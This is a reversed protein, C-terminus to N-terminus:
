KDKKPTEQGSYRAELEAFQQDWAEPDAAEERKGIRAIIAENLTKLGELANGPKAGAKFAKGDATKVPTAIGDTISVVAGQDDTQLTPARGRDAALKGNRLAVDADVNNNGAATANTMASQELGANQGRETVGGGLYSEAFAQAVRKGTPTKDELMKQYLKGAPSTFDGLDKALDEVGRGPSQYGPASARPAQLNDAISPTAAAAAPTATPQAGAIKDSEGRTIQRYGPEGPKGVTGIVENPNGTRQDVPVIGENKRIAAARAAMVAPNGPPQRKMSEPDNPNILTGDWGGGGGGGGSGAAPAAAAPKPAAPAAPAAPAPKQGALGADSQRTAEAMSGPNYLGATVLSGLGNIGDIISNGVDQTVGATRAALDGAFSTNPGTEMGLRRRYTDTDTGMGTRAGDMAGLALAGVGSDRLGTKLASGASEVPAAGLRIARQAAPKVADGIRQLTGGVRQSVPVRAGAPVTGSPALGEGLSAARPPPTAGMNTRAQVNQVTPATPNARSFNPNQRQFAEAEAPTISSPAVPRAQPTSTGIRKQELAKRAADFDSATATGVKPLEPGAIKADLRMGAAQTQRAYSPVAQPRKPPNIAM